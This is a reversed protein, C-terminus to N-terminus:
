RFLKTEFSKPSQRGIKSHPVYVKQKGNKGCLQIESFGGITLSPEMRYELTLDNGSIRFYPQVNQM